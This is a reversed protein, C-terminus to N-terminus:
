DGAEASRGFADAATADQRADAEAIREADRAAIALVKQAVYAVFGGVLLVVGVVPEVV